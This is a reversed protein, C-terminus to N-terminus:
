KNKNQFKAKKVKPTLIYKMDGLGLTVTGNEFKTEENIKSQVQQASRVTADSHAHRIAFNNVDLTQSLTQLVKEVAGDGNDRDYGRPDLTEGGLDIKMVRGKLYDFYTQHKLLEIAEEVTMPEPTYHMFGMGQPKSANFLAALVAAKDLGNLDIVTSM